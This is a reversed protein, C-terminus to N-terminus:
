IKSGCMKLMDKVLGRTVNTLEIITATAKRLEERLEKLEKYEEACLRQSPVSAGTEGYNCLISSQIGICLIIIKAYCKM